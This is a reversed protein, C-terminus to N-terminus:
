AAVLSAEEFPKNANRLPPSTSSRMVRFDRPVGDKGITLGLVVCAEIGRQFGSPPYRPPVLPRISAWYGEAPQDTPVLVKDGHDPAADVAVANRTGWTALDELRCAARLRPDQADEGVVARSAGDSRAPGYGIVTREFAKELERKRVAPEFKWTRTMAMAANAFSQQFASPTDRTFAGQMVRPKTVSGDELVYYGLILCGASAAPADAIGAPDFPQRAVKWTKEPEVDKTRQAAVAAQTSSLVLALVLAGAVNRIVDRGRDSNAWGRPGGM